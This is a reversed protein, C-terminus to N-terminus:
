LQIQLDDSPEIVMIRPHVVPTGAIPAEDTLLFLFAAQGRKRGPLGAEDGRLPQHTYHPPRYVMGYFGAASQIRDGLRDDQRENKKRVYFGGFLRIDFEDRDCILIFEIVFHIIGKRRKANFLCYDLM